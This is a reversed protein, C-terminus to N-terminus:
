LKSFVSVVTYKMILSYLIAILLLHVDNLSSYLHVKKGIQDALILMWKHEDNYCIMQDSIQHISHM